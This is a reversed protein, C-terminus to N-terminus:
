KVLHFRVVVRGIAISTEETFTLPNVPLDLAFLQECEISIFTLVVTTFRFVKM